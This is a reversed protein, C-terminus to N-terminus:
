AKNKKREAQGEPDKQEKPAYDRMGAVAGGAVAWLYLSAVSCYPALGVGTSKLGNGTSKETTTCCACDRRIALDDHSFM